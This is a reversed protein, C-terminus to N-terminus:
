KSLKQLLEIIEAKKPLAEMAGFKECALTGAAVAFRLADAINDGTGYSAAFAGLFADVSGNRDVIDTELGDVHYSENRTVALGGCTNMRLVVCDIGKAIIDAGVMKLEHINGSKLALAPDYKDIDVFLVDASYYENPLQLEVGPRATITSELIIKTGCLKATRVAASIIKPELSGCILCVDAQSILQEVHASQIEDVSLAHNAGECICGSNEGMSDVMTLIAGTSIAGANALFEVSVNYTALCDTIVAAFSDEGVKGIIYSECDCNAAQVARNAGCGTPMCSLGTGEVIESILPFRECKVAIDVYCPGVVAIKPTRSGM